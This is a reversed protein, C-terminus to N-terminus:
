SIHNDLRICDAVSGCLFINRANLQTGKEDYKRGMSFFQMIM